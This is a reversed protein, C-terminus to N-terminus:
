TSIFCGNNNNNNNNYTITCLTCYFYFCTYVVVLARTHEIYFDLALFTIAISLYFYFLLFCLCERYTSCHWEPLFDFNVFLYCHNTIAINLSRLSSIGCRAVIVGQIKRWEQRQRNAPFFRLICTCIYLWRDNNWLKCALNGGQHAINSKFIEGQWGPM